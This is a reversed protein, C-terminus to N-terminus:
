WAIINKGNHSSVQIDVQGRNCKYEPPMNCNGTTNRLHHIKAECSHVTGALQNIRHHAETLRQDSVVTCRHVMSILSYAIVHTTNNFNDGEEIHLLTEVSRPSIPPHHGVSDPAICVCLLPPSQVEQVSPTPSHPVYQVLSDTSSVSIHCTQQDNFQQLLQTAFTADEGILTPSENRPSALSNISPNSNGLM